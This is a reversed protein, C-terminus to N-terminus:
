GQRSAGRPSRASGAPAPAAQARPVPAAVPRGFRSQIPAFERVHRLYMATLQGEESAFYAVIEARSEKTISIAKRAYDQALDVVLLESYPDPVEVERTGSETASTPEPRYPYFMEISAVRDLEGNVGYLKKNRIYARPAVGDPDAIPVVTIETGIPYVTQGTLTKVVIKTIREPASVPPEMSALDVAGADVTGIACVGAYEPNQDAADAFLQQQRVGIRRYPGQRGDPWKDSFEGLRILTAQRIEEFTQM